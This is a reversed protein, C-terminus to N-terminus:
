FSEEIIGGGVVTNDNYFIVGQGKAIARQEEKFEVKVKGNDIPTITANALKKTHRIKVTVERKDQLDEISIWNMDKAILGKKYLGSEDGLVIENTEPNISQVFVRRGVAVGLGKRQGITYYVIGKHRGIVNGKSDVFNGEVVEGPRERKIFGGHDNDPIFCIEESDPKDHIVMGLKEAIERIEEKQYDGLPFMVQSLQDQTIQQLFYTQDKNEDKSMELLYRGTKEDQRTKAYHGTALYDVGLERAKDLFKDFRVYKNCMLCPNPTRGELYEDVFYSVVKREFIGRFNVVYHPIKLDSAVKKADFVSSISCCGGADEDYVEDHPTQVLTVGIVEYGQEKLIYAAVSSDVGGSMGLVVKKKM